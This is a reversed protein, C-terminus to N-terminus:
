KLVESELNELRRGYEVLVEKMESYDEIERDSNKSLDKYVLDDLSYGFREKIKILTELSPNGGKNKMNFYAAKSLEIKEFFSKHTLKHSTRIEEINSKIRKYYDKFNM